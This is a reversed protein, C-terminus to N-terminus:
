DGMQELRFVRCAQLWPPTVQGGGGEFHSFGVRDCSLGCTIM